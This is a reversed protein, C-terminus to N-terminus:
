HAASITLNDVGSVSQYTATIQATGVGVGTVLGTPNVTAVATNSSQWTSQGTVDQTTGTSLTATAVFQSTAGVASVTGTVAVMSVTSPSTSSGCAVAFMAAAVVIIMGAIWHGRVNM